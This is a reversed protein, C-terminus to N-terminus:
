VVPMRQVFGALIRNVDGSHRFPTIVEKAREITNPEEGTKVYGFGRYFGEEIVIVSREDFYRGEDIIIRSETATISKM